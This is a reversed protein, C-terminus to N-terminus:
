PQGLRMHNIAHLWAAAPVAATLARMLWGYRERHVHFISQRGALKYGPGWTELEAANGVAWRFPADFRNGLEFRSGFPLMAPITSDFIIGAGPWQRAIHDFLARVDAPDLYMLVGEAVLLPNDQGQPVAEKMWAPDLVDAAICRRRRHGPHFRERLAIIAPLDLDICSMVGNDVRGFRNDLGEGINILTARPHGRLYERVMNDILATRVCCGVQTASPVRLSHFDYDLSAITTVATWDSIIPRPRTTEVARAWLPVLMTLPVGRIDGVPRKSMGEAQRRGM